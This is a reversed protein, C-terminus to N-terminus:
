HQIVWSILLCSSNIMSNKLGGKKKEFHIVTEWYLIFPYLPFGNQTELFFILIKFTNSFSLVHLIHQIGNCLPIQGSATKETPMPDDVQKTSNPKRQVPINHKNHSLDPIDETNAKQEQIPELQTQRVFMGYFPDCQFYAKEQVTGNNKGKPEDLEIGVWKGKAFEVLGVYRVTGSLKKDRVMVRMGLKIVASM